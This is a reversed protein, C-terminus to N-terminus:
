SLLLTLHTLCTKPFQRDSDRHFKSKLLQM